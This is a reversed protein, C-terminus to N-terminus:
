LTVEIQLLVTRPAGATFQRAVTLTPEAQSHFDSAYNYEGLRYRTDLLNAAHIGLKYRDWAVSVSGDITFIPDSREGYPLARPGVYTVGAGATAIPATGHVLWPLAHFVVGDSRVVVDPVYPILLGTDDFTSRVVTVSANDDFWAGRLRGSLSGGLRTSGGALVNRGVTESFVLDQDVHTRFGSLRLELALDAPTGQYAVGADYSAIEAFPTQRDQSIYSPDISRVGRGYSLSPSLGAFPGLVLSARPLVIAGSTTAREVPERYKGFDAQSLCSADGPPNSAVPHAIDQSACNDLVNYTFLDARVGGRLAAWPTLRADLAAYLGVDGLLADLDEDKHYPYSPMATEALRYQQGSTADLRAAYGLELAQALGALEGTRRLFGQAQATLADSELDILDGRQDHPSQLATQQDLLFGTFDERLRMAQATISLQHHTTYGPHQFELDGLVFARSAAGGQGFDYTDYFGKRGADYDDERIVGASHYDTLYIGSTLRWLGDDGLKDELQGLATARRADRNEGFGSTQYLEVGGFNHSNAAPSGWLLVARQTGFSGLEYRATLGRQTLGLEYDASGAVAFNGQRPDYPGEIVRVSQVLEPLVFHLDAYGNGHLNGVQNVVDGNVRLELDQGERADFGRLFIQEAHGEGGENTLLFGPAWGLLETADKHPIETALKGAEVHVDQAGVSPAAQHGRELANLTGHVTITEGGATADPDFRVTVTMHSAVPAGGTHAPEFTWELVSAIALDDFAPNPPSIVRPNGPAGSADVEVHVLVDVRKQQAKPVDPYIPATQHAIRPPEETGPSDPRAPAAPTPTAPSTPAAPTTPAAPEPATPAPPAPPAGPAPTGAGTPQAYLLRPFALM